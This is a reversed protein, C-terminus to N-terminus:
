NLRIKRRFINKVIPMNPELEFQKKYLDNRYSQHNSPNLQFMIMERTNGDQPIGAKHLCLNPNIIFMDGKKGTLYNVEYKNEVKLNDNNKLSLYNKTDNINIWNLPGCNIDIDKPFIFVKLVNQTFMSDNHWINAYFQSTYLEKPISSTKYYAFFDVCYNMGTVSKIENFLGNKKFFHNVCNNIDKENAIYISSYKSHKREEEIRILPFNIVSSEVQYGGKTSILHQKDAEFEKKYFTKEFFSLIRLIFLTIYRLM